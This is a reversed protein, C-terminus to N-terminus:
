FSIFCWIPDHALAKIPYSLVANCQMANCQLNVPQACSVPIRASQRIFCPRYLLGPQATFIGLVRSGGSSTPTARHVSASLGCKFSCMLCGGRICGHRAELTQNLMNVTPIATGWRRGNVVGASHRAHGVRERNIWAVASSTELHAVHESVLISRTDLCRESANTSLRRLRNGSGISSGALSAATFNGFTQRVGHRAWNASRWAAVAMATNNTESCACPKM